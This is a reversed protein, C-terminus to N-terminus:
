HQPHSNLRNSAFDAPYAHRAASDSGTAAVIISHMVKENTIANRQCRLRGREAIALRRDEDGLLRKCQEICEAADRWFIAEEGEVYFRQHVSTREACLLGALAPIEASRNTWLDRNGKSLLGLSIRACQIAKAYDEGELGPGRWAQRLRPWEPARHWRNGYISLPLGGEVLAALFAGRQEMWTGVFVIESAWKQRDLDSLPLPAHAVEDASLYTLFVSRAGGAYAEAVNVERIVVNIDYEPLARLYLRFRGKDRGGFPDDNVYSIVKTCNKKLAAVTAPGILEGQDVICLDYRAEGIRRLLRQRVTADFLEGGINWAIRDVWPSRPLLQRPDLLEVQHGLRVCANARQASGWLRSGIWLIKM